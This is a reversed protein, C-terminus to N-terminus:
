NGRRLKFANHAQLMANQDVVISASREKMSEVENSFMIRLGSCGGKDIPQELTKRKVEACHRVAPIRVLNRRQGIAKVSSISRAGRKEEASRQALQEGLIRQRDKEHRKRVLNPSISLRRIGETLRDSVRRRQKPKGREHDCRKFIRRREKM